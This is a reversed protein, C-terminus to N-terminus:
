MPAVVHGLSDELRISVDVCYLLTAAPVPLLKTEYNLCLMHIDKDLAYSKKVHVITFNHTSSSHQRRSHHLTPRTLVSMKSSYIAEM